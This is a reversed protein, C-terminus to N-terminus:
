SSVDRRRLIVAVVAVGLVAYLALRLWLTAGTVTATEPAVVYRLLLGPFWHSGFSLNDGLVNEIPGAWLIGVGLGVAVSRTLIGILTGLLAWGILFVMVELFDDLAMRLSTTDLWSGTDIGQSPAVIYATVMGAVFLVAVIIAGIAIRAGFTGVALTLRRPQQLLSARWTGRAFSGASMGVFVALILVSTFAAATRVALTGGGSEGLAQISIGAPAREPATNIMVVTLVASYIVTFSLAILWIRKSSLRIWEAVFARALAPTPRGRSPESLHTVAAPAGTRTSTSTSM